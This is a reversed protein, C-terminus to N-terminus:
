ILLDSSSDLLDGKVSLVHGMAKVSPDPFWPEQIRQPKPGCAQVPLSSVPSAVRESTGWGTVESGERLVGSFLSVHTIQMSM